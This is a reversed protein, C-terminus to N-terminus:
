AIYLETVNYDSSMALTTTCSFGAPVQWSPSCLGWLICDGAQPEVVPGKGCTLDNINVAEIWERARGDYFITRAM